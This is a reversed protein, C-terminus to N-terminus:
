CPDRLDHVSGFDLVPHKVSQAVWAVRFDSNKIRISIYIAVSTPHTYIYILGLDTVIFM